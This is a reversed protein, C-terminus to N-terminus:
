LGAIGPALGCYSSKVVIWNSGINVELEGDEVLFGVSRSEKSRSWLLKIKGSDLSVRYKSGAGWGGSLARCVQKGQLSVM